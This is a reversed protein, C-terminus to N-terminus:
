LSTHLKYIVEWTSKWKCKSPIPTWIMEIDLIIHPLHPKLDWLSNLNKYTHCWLVFFFTQGRFFSHKQVKASLFIFLIVHYLFYKSFYCLKSFQL